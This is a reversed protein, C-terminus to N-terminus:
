SPSFARVRPFEITRPLNKSLLSVTFEQYCSFAPALCTLILPTKPDIFGLVKSSEFGCM